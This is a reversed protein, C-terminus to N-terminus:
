KCKEEFQDLLANIIKVQEAMNYLPEMNKNMEECKGILKAMAKTATDSANGVNKVCDRYCEAYQVSSTSIGNLNRTINDMMRHLNRDVEVAKSELVMLADIDVFPVDTSKSEVETNISAAEKSLTESNIVPEEALKKVAENTESLQPVSLDKEALYNDLTASHKVYVEPSKERLFEAM